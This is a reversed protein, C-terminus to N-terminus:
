AADPLSQLQNAANGLRDASGFEGFIENVNGYRYFALPQFSFASPTNRPNPNMNM